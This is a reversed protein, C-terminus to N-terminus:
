QQVKGTEPIPARTPVKKAEEKLGQSLHCVVCLAKAGNGRARKASPVMEM